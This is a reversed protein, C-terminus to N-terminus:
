GPLRRPAARRRRHARLCITLRQPDGAALASCRNASSPMLIGSGRTWIGLSFGFRGHCRFTNAFDELSKLGAVTGREKFVDRLIDVPGHHASRRQSAVVGAFLGESLACEDLKALNKWLSRLEIHLM